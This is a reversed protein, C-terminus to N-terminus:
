TKQCMSCVGNNKAFGCECFEIGILKAQNKVREVIEDIKDFPLYNTAHLIFDNIAEAPSLDMIKGAEIIEILKIDKEM